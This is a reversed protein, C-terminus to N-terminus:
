FLKCQKSEAASAFLPLDSFGKLLSIQTSFVKDLSGQKKMQEVYESVAQQEEKPLKEVKKAFAKTNMKKDNLYALVDDTTEFVSISIGHNEVKDFERDFQAYRANLLSVFYVGFRKRVIRGSPLCRTLEVKPIDKLTFM